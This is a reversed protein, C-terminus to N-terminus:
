ASVRKRAVQADRTRLVRCVPHQCAVACWTTQRVPRSAALGNLFGAASAEDDAAIYERLIRNTDVDVDGAAARGIAYACGFKQALEPSLHATRETILEAISM